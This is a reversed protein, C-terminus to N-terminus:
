DVSLTRMRRANGMIKISATKKVDWMAGFFSKNPDRSITVQITPGDWDEDIQDYPEVNFIELGYETEPEVIFAWYGWMAFLYLNCTTFEYYGYAVGPRYNWIGFSDTISDAKLSWRTEGDGYNRSLYEGDSVFVGAEESLDHFTFAGDGGHILYMSIQTEAYTGSETDTLDNYGVFDIAYTSIDDDATWVKRWITLHYNAGFPNPNHIPDYEAFNSGDDHLLWDADKVWSAADAGEVTNLAVFDGEDDVRTMQQCILIDGVQPTESMFGSGSHDGFFSPEWRFGTSDSDFTPVVLHYEFIAEAAVTM